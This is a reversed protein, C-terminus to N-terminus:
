ISAVAVLQAPRLEILIRSQQSRSQSKRVSASGTVYKGTILRTWFGDTDQRLDAVGVARVQRNPREGDSREQEEDDVVIGCQLNQRLREVHPRGPLSTMYFSGASWVFWLPTVHPFGDTDLTALRAPIDRELLARIEEQGMQRPM